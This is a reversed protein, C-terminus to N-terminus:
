SINDSLLKYDKLDVLRSYRDVDCDILIRSWDELAIEPDNALSALEEKTIWRGDAVVDKEHLTISNMDVKMTFAIAIHVASVPTFNNWVIAFKNNSLIDKIERHLIDYDVSDCIYVEEDLERIANHTVIEIFNHCKPLTNEVHGGIGISHRGTLRSEGSGKGRRYIFVKDTVKDILTIYPIIQVYNEDVEAINRDIFYMELSFIESDDVALLSNCNNLKDYHKKKICLIETM